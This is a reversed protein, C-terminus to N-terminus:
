PTTSRRSGVRAPEPRRRYQAIGQPRGDRDCWVVDMRDRFAASKASDVAAQQTPYDRPPGARSAVEWQGDRFSVVYDFALLDSESVVATKNEATKRV